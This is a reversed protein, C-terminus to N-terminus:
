GSSRSRCRRPPGGGCCGAWRWRRLGAHLAVAGAVTWAAARAPELLVAPTHNFWPWAFALYGPFMLALARSGRRAPRPRARRVEPVRVWAQHVLLHLATVAAYPALWRASARLDPRAGPRGIASPWRSWWCSRCRRRRASCRSRWRSSRRRARGAGARRGRAATSSCRSCSSSRATSTPGARSGRWRSSTRPCRARLADRGAGRGAAPFGAGLALAAVLASALAHALANM